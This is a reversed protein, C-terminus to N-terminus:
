DFRYNKPEIDNSLVSIISRALGIERHLLQEIENAVEPSMMIENLPPTTRNPTKSLYEIKSYRSLGSPYNTMEISFGKVFIGMIIHNSDNLTFEYGNPTVLKM